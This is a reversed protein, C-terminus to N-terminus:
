LDIWYRQIVEHDTVDYRENELVGGCSIITKSSAINSKDSVMLVRLIGKVKAEALALELMKKALGQGRKSPRIGYAIHGRIKFLIEDLYHRINVVGLIDDNNDVFFYTTEPVYGRPLNIDHEAKFFEDLLAEYTKDKLDANVPTISENAWEKIYAIYKEKYHITPKVLQM